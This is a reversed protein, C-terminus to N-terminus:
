TSKTRKTNKATAKSPEGPRKVGRRKKPASRYVMYDCLIEDFAKIPKTVTVMNVESVSDESDLEIEFQINPTRGDDNTVSNIFLTPSFSDVLDVWQIERNAFAGFDDEDVINKLNQLYSHIHRIKKATPPTFKKPLRRSSDERLNDKERPYQEPEVGVWYCVDEHPITHIGNCFLRENVQIDTSAFLGYNSENRYDVPAIFCGANAAKIVIETM